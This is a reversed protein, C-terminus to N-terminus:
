IRAQLDMENTELYYDWVIFDFNSGLVCNFMGMAIKKLITKLRFTKNPITGDDLKPLTVLATLIFVLTLFLRSM